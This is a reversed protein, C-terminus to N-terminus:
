WREAIMACWMTWSKPSRGDGPDVAVLLCARMRSRGPARAPSMPRRRRSRRSRAWRCGSRICIRRRRWTACADGVARRVLCAGDRLEVQGPPAQLLHAGIRRVKEALMECARSVAGGAMTMSRSAFTGMGYPSTATDGHRVIVDAIPIGLEEHAVQALTTELGQGHNQIGVLLMLKGDPTFRALAPEFGFVVPLGRAVWEATGHATQETYCAIGLGILRGDAEAGKQRERIAPAGIADLVRRCAEPYDGSDYLKGTASRYPM